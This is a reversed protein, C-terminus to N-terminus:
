GAPPRGTGPRSTRRDAPTTGPGGLLQDPSTFEGALYTGTEDGQAALEQIRSFMRQREGTVVLRCMVRSVCAREGQEALFCLAGVDIGEPGYAECDWRDDM